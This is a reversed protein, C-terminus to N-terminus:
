HSKLLCKELGLAVLLFQVPFVSSFHLSAKTVAEKIALKSRPILHDAQDM